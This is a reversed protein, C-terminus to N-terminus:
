FVRFNRQRQVNEGDRVYNSKLSDNCSFFRHCLPNNTQDLQFISAYETVHLM